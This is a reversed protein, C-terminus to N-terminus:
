RNLLKELFVGVDKNKDPLFGNMMGAVGNREFPASGSSSNGVIMGTFGAERLALVVHAGDAGGFEGKLDSDMFVVHPSNTLINKVADSLSDSYSLYVVEFQEATRPDDRELEIMALKSGDVYDDVFM